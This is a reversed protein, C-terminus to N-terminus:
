EWFDNEAWEMIGLQDAADDWAVDHPNHCEQYISAPM